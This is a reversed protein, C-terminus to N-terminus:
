TSTEPFLHIVLNLNPEPKVNGSRLPNAGLYCHTGGCRNVFACVYECPFLSQHSSWAKVVLSLYYFREVYAFSRPCDLGTIRTVLLHILIM